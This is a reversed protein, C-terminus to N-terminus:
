FQAPNRGLGKLARGQAPHGAQFEGALGAFDALHGGVAL